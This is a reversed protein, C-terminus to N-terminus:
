SHPEPSPESAWLGSPLMRMVDEVRANHSDAGCDCPQGKKDSWAEPHKPCSYFSDDSNHDHERIALSHLGQILPRLDDAHIWGLKQLEGRIAAEKTSVYHHSWEESIASLKEAMAIIGSDLDSGTRFEPGKFSIQPTNM